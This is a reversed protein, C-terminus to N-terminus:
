RFLLQNDIALLQEQFLAQIRELAENTDAEFRLTLVPSTNSARILGWGDPYDVRLGDITTLTGAGFDGRNALQEVIEFKARESSKIKLEPTSVSNPFRAFVEDVSEDAAGIIELLRAAAYLADDFGYWREGFCIHGSFEGALLANTERLKAKMHSHGTKWMIPRGGLDGILTNLHRSCKVDYIIDAGPNRGAIDQAFLMLLQDAWIIRGSGSVVGIRDGDGDFALGLDAQEARV